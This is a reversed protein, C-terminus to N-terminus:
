HCQSKAWPLLLAGFTRRYLVLLLLWFPCSRAQLPWAIGKKLPPLKGIHGIGCIIKQGLYMWTRNSLFQNPVIWGLFFLGLFDRGLDSCLPLMGPSGWQDIPHHGPFGRKVITHLHTLSASNDLSGVTSSIQSILQVNLWAMGDNRYLCLPPSYCQASYYLFAWQHLIHSSDSGGVLTISNTSIKIGTDNWSAPHVLPDPIYTWYTEGLTGFV